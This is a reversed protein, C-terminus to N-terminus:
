ADQEELLLRGIRGAEELIAFADKAESLPWHGDIRLDRLNATIQLRCWKDGEFYCNVQIDGLLRHTFTTNFTVPKM